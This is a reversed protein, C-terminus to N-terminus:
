SWLFRKMACRCDLTGRDLLSKTVPKASSTGESTVMPLEVIKGGIALLTCEFLFDRHGNIETSSVTKAYREHIVVCCTKNPISAFVIDNKRTPPLTETVYADVSFVFQALDTCEIATLRAGYNNLSWCKNLQHGSQKCFGCTKSQGGGKVPNNKRKKLSSKYRNTPRGGKPPCAPLPQSLVTPLQIIDDGKVCSMEAGFHTAVDPLIFYSEMNWMAGENQLQGMMLLRLNDCMVGEDFTSVEDAAIEQGDILREIEQNHKLMLSPDMVLRMLRNKFNRLYQHDTLAVHGPLVNKLMSHLLRNELTGGADHLLNIMDQLVEINLTGSRSQKMAYRQSEVGPSCTHGYICTTIKVPYCDTHKIKGDSDYMWEQHSKKDTIHNFKITFPCQIKEKVSEITTRPKTSKGDVIAVKASCQSEKKQRPPAYHCVFSM